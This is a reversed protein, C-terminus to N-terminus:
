DGGWDHEERLEGLRMTVSKLTDAIIEECVELYDFESKIKVRKKLLERIEEVVAQKEKDTM